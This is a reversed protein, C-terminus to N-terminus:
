PSDNIQFRRIIGLPRGRDGAIVDQLQCIAPHTQKMATNLYVLINLHSGYLLGKNM